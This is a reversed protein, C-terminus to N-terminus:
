PLVAHVPVEGAQEGDHATDGDGDDALEDALLDTVPEVLDGTADQAQRCTPKIAALASGDVAVFPFRLEGVDELAGFGAWNGPEDGSAPVGKAYKDIGAADGAVEV